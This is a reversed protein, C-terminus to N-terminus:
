WTVAATIIKDPSHKREVVAKEFAAMANPKAKKHSSSLLAWFSEFPKSYNYKNSGVTTGKMIKMWGNNIANKIFAKVDQMKDDPIKDPFLIYKAEPM